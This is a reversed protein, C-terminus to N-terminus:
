AEKKAPILYMGDIDTLLYGDASLLVNQPIAPEDGADADNWYPRYVGGITIFAKKINNYVGDATLFGKKVKCYTGDITLFEKNGMADGM